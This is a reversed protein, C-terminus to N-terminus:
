TPSFASTWRVLDQFADLDLRARKLAHDATHENDNM